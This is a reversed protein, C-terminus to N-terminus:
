RKGEAHKYEILSHQANRKFFFQTQGIAIPIQQLHSHFGYLFLTLWNGSKNRHTWASRISLALIFIIYLAAPWFSHLVPSLVAAALAGLTFIVAQRLNHRSEHQWLTLLHNRRLRSVCAYAFGTRVSRRWYQKFRTMALDHETMPLELHLIRYGRERIRCCMEPEEGAILTTDYGNVEALVSRRVLVDGGFYDSDGYPFIWDLDLVCNYVSDGTLMERRDGFVACLDPEILSPLAKAVFDPHLITDGDLFLILDGKALQWGANRARAATTKGPGLEIATAGMHQALEVSDDTSHSDVYILEVPLAANMAMVSDICRELRVGENRGIIVVSLLNFTANTM